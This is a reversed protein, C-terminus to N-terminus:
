PNIRSDDSFADIPDFPASLVADSTSRIRNTYHAVDNGLGEPPAIEVNMGKQRVARVTQRLVVLESAVNRPDVENRDSIMKVRIRGLTLSTEVSCERESDTVLECRRM